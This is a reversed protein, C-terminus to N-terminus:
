GKPVVMLVIVDTENTNKSPLLILRAHFDARTNFPCKMIWKENGLDGRDFNRNKASLFGQSIYICTWVIARAFKIDNELFNLFHALKYNNDPGSLLYLVTFFLLKFFVLISTVKFRFILVFHFKWFANIKCEDKYRFAFFVLNFDHIAGKVIM